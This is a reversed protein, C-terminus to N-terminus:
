DSWWVHYHCNNIPAPFVLTFNVPISNIETEGKLTDTSTKDFNLLDFGQPLELWEFRATYRGETTSTVADHIDCQILTSQTTSDFSFSYDSASVGNKALRQEFDEKFDAKFQAQNALYNAFDTEGWFSQRLYHLTLGDAKVEVVRQIEGEEKTPPVEKAPPVETPAACGGVTALLGILLLTFASRKLIQTVRM